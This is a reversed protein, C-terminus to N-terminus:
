GILNSRVLWGLTYCEMEERTFEGPRVHGVEQCYLLFLRLERETTLPGTRLETALREFHLAIEERWESSSNVLKSPSQSSSEPM